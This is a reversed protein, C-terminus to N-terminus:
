NDQSSAPIGPRAVGSFRVSVEPKTPHGISLTVMGGFSGTFDDPLGELRVTVDLQKGESGEVPAIHVSFNEAGTFEGGTISQFRYDPDAPLAFDPDLCEVKVSREMPEGPRVAGFSVFNPTAVVLANVTANVFCMLERTTPAHDIEEGEGHDHEDAQPIDSTMRLQYRRMGEPVDPGLSVSLEWNRARGEADPDVPTLTASLPAVVNAEDLELMFPDLVTTSIAVTGTRLEGSTMQGLDLQQPEISLVPQVDAQLQLRMPSAPDNSYIAINSHFAGQRNATNISAGVEFETGPPIPTGIEYVSRAGDAAVLEIEAATCGCSPRVREIILPNEGASKLTYQVDAKEGELMEGFHTIEEGEVIELSGPPVIPMPATTAVPAPPRPAQKEPFGTPATTDALHSLDIGTDLMAPQRGHGGVLKPEAKPTQKPMSKAAGDGQGQMANAGTQDTAPAQAATAPTNSATENSKTKTTDPSGGCGVALLTVLLASNAPLLLRM